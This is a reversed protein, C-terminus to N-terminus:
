MHPVAAQDTQGSGSYSEPDVDRRVHPLEQFGEEHAKRIRLVPNAVERSLTQVVDCLHRLAFDQYVEIWDEVRETLHACNASTRSASSLCASEILSAASESNDTLFPASSRSRRSLSMTASDAETYM